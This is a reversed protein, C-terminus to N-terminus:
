KIDFPKDITIAKDKYQYTILAHYSGPQLNIKIEGKLNGEKGPFILLEPINFTGLFSEDKGIVAVIASGYIHTNGENLVKLELAPLKGSTGAIFDASKIRSKVIISGRTEQIITAGLRIAMGVRTVIKLSPPFYPIAHFFAVASNGGIIGKPVTISMNVQKSQKPELEFPTNPYTIYRAISSPFSGIPRYIKNGNKDFGIEQISPNITVKISEDNKVFITFTKSVGPETELEITAPSITLSFAPTPFCIFCFIIVIKLLRM